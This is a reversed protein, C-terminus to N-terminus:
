HYAFGRIFEDPGLFLMVNLEKAKAIVLEDNVSGSSALIARIGAAALVEIGDTFPFFSDSYAVSGVPDLGADRARQIALKAAGVRDQQGVGNGIVRGARVLTIANSNATSGVTHGLSLDRILAEYERPDLQKDPRVDLPGNPSLDLVFDYPDQLFFGGWVKRILPKGALTCIM